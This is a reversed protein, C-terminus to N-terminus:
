FGLEDNRNFIGSNANAFFLCLLKKNIKVNEAITECLLLDFLPLRDPHSNLRFSSVLGALSAFVSQLHNEHCDLEPQVPVFRWNNRKCSM